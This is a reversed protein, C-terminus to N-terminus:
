IDMRTFRINVPKSKVFTKEIPLYYGVVNEGKVVIYAEHVNFSNVIVVQDRTRYVHGQEISGVKSWRTDEKLNSAASKSAKVIVAEELMYIAAQNETPVLQSRLQTQNAACSFVLFALIAISFRTIKNTM